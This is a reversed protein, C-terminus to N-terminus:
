SQVQVNLSATKSVTGNLNITTQPLKLYSQDFSLEQKTASYTAHVSAEQSLPASQAKTVTGKLEADAHAVLTDFTKRWSADVKGNATGTLEIDKTAEENLLRQINALGLNHLAAHLESVQAGTVDRMKLSGDVGGGLAQARLDRVEADGNQLIYRASISRVQTNITTTRIQLTDSTMNGD